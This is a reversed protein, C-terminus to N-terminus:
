LAEMFARAAPTLGELVVGAPRTWRSRELVLNVQRHATGDFARVTFGNEVYGVARSVGLSAANEAWAASEAHEAGLGDFAFALVAERMARGYGRGQYERGIWSGTSVTKTIAFQKAGIEQVGIPAGDVSAMFLLNWRDPSWTALQEWAYQLFAREADPSPLDSWGTVPSRPLFRNQPDYVGRAATRALAALDTESPVSLTLAGHRVVIKRVPWLDDM